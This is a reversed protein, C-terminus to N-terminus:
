LPKNSGVSYWYISRDALKRTPEAALEIGIRKGLNLARHVTISDVGAQEAARVSVALVELNHLSQRSKFLDIVAEAVSVLPTAGVSEVTGNSYQIYFSAIAREQSGIM